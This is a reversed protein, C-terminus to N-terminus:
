SFFDPKWNSRVFDPRMGSLFLITDYPTIVYWSKVIQSYFAHCSNNPAFLCDFYLRASFFPYSENDSAFIYVLKFVGNWCFVGGSDVMLSHTYGFILALTLSHICIMLILIISAGGPSCSYICISWLTFQTNLHSFIEKRRKKCLCPLIASPFGDLSHGVRISYSWPNKITCLVMTHYVANCVGPRQVTQFFLYCSSIKNKNEVLLSIHVFSNIPCQVM